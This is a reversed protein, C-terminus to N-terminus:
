IISGRNSTPICDILRARGLKDVGDGFWMDFDDANDVVLLWQGDHEQDLHQKVLKKIDAKEEEIGSVQLLQGIELYSQEFTEVSAAVVWFISYDPYNDKTQYALELAIQTKGVGGLGTIAVKSCRQAG